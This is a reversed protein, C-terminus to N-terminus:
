RISVQMGDDVPKAEVDFRVTFKEPFGKPPRQGITKTANLATKVSDDWRGNGSGAVWRYTQVKGTPDVSLEAEAVFKEDDMDEPRNWRSRLTREVAQKYVTNADSIVEKAGDDFAFSSVNVAEPAAVTAGNNAPPPASATEVKPAPAPERPKDQAVKPAEPKPEPAKEKVPEPKPKDKPVMTVALTKLKNGLMGERAALFTIACILVTHFVASVTFNVRSSNKRKRHSM